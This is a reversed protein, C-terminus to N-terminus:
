FDTNKHAIVGHSERGNNIHLDDIERNILHVLAISPNTYRIKIL